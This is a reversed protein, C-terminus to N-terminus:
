IQMREAGVIKKRESGGKKFKVKGREYKRRNTREQTM